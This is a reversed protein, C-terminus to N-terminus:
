RDGYEVYLEGYSDLTLRLKLNTDNGDGWTGKGSCELVLASDDDDEPVVVHGILNKSESLGTATILQTEIPDGESLAIAESGLAECDFDDPLGLDYASLGDANEDVGDDSLAIGIGMIAVVGVAAGAIALKVGRPAKPKGESPAPQFGGAPSAQQGVGPQGVGPQQGAQGYGPQFGPQGFGSQQAAQGYGAQGYGPQASQTPQGSQTPQAAQQDAARRGPHEYSVSPGSQSSTTPGQPAAAAVPQTQTTWNQGDFYRMLQPNQPDVYWGAPAAM